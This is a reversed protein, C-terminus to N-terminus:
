FRFWSYLSSDMQHVVIELCSFEIIAFHLTMPMSQALATVDQEMYTDHFTAYTQYVHLMPARADINSLPYDHVIATSSRTARKVALHKDREIRRSILNCSFCRRKLSEFYESENIWRWGELEIGRVPNYLIEILSRKRHKPGFNYINQFFAFLICPVLFIWRLISLWIHGSYSTIFSWILFGMWHFAQHIVQTIIATFQLLHDRSLIAQLLLLFSIAARVSFIIPLFIM